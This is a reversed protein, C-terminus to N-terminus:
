TKSHVYKQLLKKPLKSYVVWSTQADPLGAWKVLYHRKKKNKSVKIDKMALIKEPIRILGDIEDNDSENEEITDEISSTFPITSNTSSSMTTVTDDTITSTKVEPKQEESRTIAQSRTNRHRPQNNQLTEEDSGDDTLKDPFYEDNFRPNSMPTRLATDERRILDSLMTTGTTTSTTSINKDGEQLTLQSSKHTVDTQELSLEIESENTDVSYIDETEQLDDLEIPLDANIWVIELGANKIHTEKQKENSLSEAEIFPKMRSVHIIAHIDPLNTSIVRYNVPSTKQVIEYPGHWQHLLKTTQGVMTAPVFIWVLQGIYYDTDKKNKDYHLAQRTKAVELNEIVKKRAKILGEVLRKKFEHIPTGEKGPISLAIDIPMRPERGYTLFFPTELTSSQVATRYAFLVYPLCVDWDDQTESVYMSLMWVLTKNFREQLGDTQPHYSSTNLKGTNLLQNVFKMVHGLFARGRDSLLKRPAGHRCVIEEVYVESLTLATQNPIAFAEVWRTLCCTFGVIYRNGLRTPPLPGIVDVAVVEFPESPVPIPLMKGVNRTPPPKKSACDTCSAVWQTVDGKMGSWYFRSLLRNYTKAVGLHAAFPDNHCATMIEDRLARPVILQKFETTIRRSKPLFSLRYLLDNELIFKVKIGEEVMSDETVRKRFQDLEKDSQQLRRFRNIPLEIETTYCEIVLSRNELTILLCTSALEDFEIQKELKVLNVPARSLADVHPISKGSVHIINYHYDSMKITWRLLRGSPNKLSNLWQLAHHDTHVDFEPGLLYCRFAKTCSWIVGLAEKETVSYSKENSQLSRSAYAIVREEGKDDKQSLAAGIGHNSADCTLLFRKSFDPFSMVDSSVLIGKLKNFSEQCDFTWEFVSNKGMLKHLPAAITAMDKIFRRYYSCMGIFSRVSSVDFPIPLEVIAKIKSPDVKIGDKSIIHGLFGIETMFFKCKDLRLTVHFQQIASLMLELDVLHLDFSTSYVLVDDIYVLCIWWKLGALISDMNRQFTAPANTLGFPMVTWEWLGYRSTTFATKSIDDPNMAIQWFGSNADVTSFYKSGRISDFMDEIRPLPYVDRKTVSNLKRYDVCFRLTGDKKKALVIPSAWSSNSPKILGLKDLKQVTEGIFENHRPPERYPAQCIPLGNGTDISHKVNLMKGPKSTDVAFSNRYEWLLNHIKILEEPTLYEKGIKIKSIFEEQKWPQSPPPNSSILEKKDNLIKSRNPELVHAEKVTDILLCVPENVLVEVHAVLCKRKLKITNRSLNIFRVPIRGTTLDVITRAVSLSEPLNRVSEVIGTSILTVPHISDTNYTALTAEVVMESRSPVEIDELLRVQLTVIGSGSSLAIREGELYICSSKADTVLGTCKMFDVGILLSFPCNSVVVLPTKFLSKGIVLDLTVAGIVELRSGNATEVRPGGYEYLKSKYDPLLRLFHTGVISIASGTDVIVDVSIDELKGKVSLATAPIITGVRIVEDGNIFDEDIEKNITHVGNQSVIRKEPTVQSSENVLVDEM